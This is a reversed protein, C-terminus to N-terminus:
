FFMKRCYDIGRTRIIHEDQTFKNAVERVSMMAKTSSLPSSNMNNPLQPKFLDMYGAAKWKRVYARLQGFDFMPGMENLYEVVVEVIVELKFGQTRLQARAEAARDNDMIIRGVARLVQGLSYERKGQDFEKYILM